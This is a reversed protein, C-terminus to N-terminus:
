KLVIKVITVKGALSPKGYTIVFNDALFRRVTHLRNCKACRFYDKKKTNRIFLCKPCIVKHRDSDNLSINDLPNRHNTVIETEIM